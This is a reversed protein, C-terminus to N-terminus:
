RLFICITNTWEHYRCVANFYYNVGHLCLKVTRQWTPTSWFAKNVLRLLSRRKDDHSKLVQRAPLFTHFNTFFNKNSHLISLHSCTGTALMGFMHNVMAYDAPLNALQMCTLCWTLMLLLQNTDSESSQTYQIIIAAEDCLWWSGKNIHQHPPTNECCSAAGRM